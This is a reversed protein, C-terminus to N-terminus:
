CSSREASGADPALLAASIFPADLRSLETPSCDEKRVISVGDTLAEGTRATGDVEAGAGETREFTDADEM